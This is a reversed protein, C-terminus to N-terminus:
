GQHRLEQGLCLPRHQLAWFTTVCDVVPQVSAQAAEVRRSSVQFCSQKVKCVIDTDYNTCEGSIAEACSTNKLTWYGWQYQTIEASQEGVAQVYKNLKLSILLMHHVNNM